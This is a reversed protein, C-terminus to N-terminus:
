QVSWLLSCVTVIYTPTMTPAWGSLRRWRPRSSTVNLTTQSCRQPPLLTSLSKQCSSRTERGAFCLSIHSKSVDWQTLLLLPTCSIHRVKDMNVHLSPWPPSDSDSELAKLLSQSIELEDAPCPPVRRESVCLALHTFLCVTPWM